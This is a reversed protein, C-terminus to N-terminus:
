KAISQDRVVFLHKIEKISLDYEDGEVLDLLTELFDSKKRYDSVARQELRQQIMGQVMGLLSEMHHSMRRRIGQPDLPAFFPFFDSINAAGMYITIARVHEMLKKNTDSDSAAGGGDVSFLTAFMLSSMTTFTAQGVNVAAGGGCCSSVHDALEQLREHRLGQSAELAQNSFLNEKAIRHLKRWRDSAAPLMAMSVGDHGHVSVANPSFRNAFLRGQKQM